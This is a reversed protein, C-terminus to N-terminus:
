GLSSDFRALNVHSLVYGTLRGAELPGNYSKGKSARPIKLQLYLNSSANRQNSLFWRVM